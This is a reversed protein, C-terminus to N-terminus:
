PEFGLPPTHFTGANPFSLTGCDRGSFRALEGFRSILFFIGLLLLKPLLMLSLM